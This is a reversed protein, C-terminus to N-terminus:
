PEDPGKCECQRRLGGLVEDLVDLLEAGVAEAGVRGDDGPATM